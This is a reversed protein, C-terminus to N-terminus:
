KNKLKLRDRIRNFCGRYWPPQSLPWKEHLLLMSPSITSRFLHTVKMLFKFALLPQFLNTAPKSNLFYFFFFYFINNWGEQCLKHKGMKDIYCTKHLEQNVVGAYSVWARNRSLSKIRSSPLIFLHLRPSLPFPQHM